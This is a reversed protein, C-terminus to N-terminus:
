GRSSAPALPACGGELLRLKFMLLEPCDKDSNFLESWFEISLWYRKYRILAAVIRPNSDDDISMRSLAKVVRDVHASKYLLELVDLADSTDSVDSRRIVLYFLHSPHSELMKSCHELNILRSVNKTSSYHVAMGVVCRLGQTSVLGPHNAILDVLYIAVFPVQLYDNWNSNAISELLHTFRLQENDGGGQQASEALIQVAQISRAKVYLKSCNLKMDSVRTAIRLGSLHNRKLYRNVLDKRLYGSKILITQYFSQVTQITAVLNDETAADCLADTDHLANQIRLKERISVNFSHSKTDLDDTTASLVITPISKTWSKLELM